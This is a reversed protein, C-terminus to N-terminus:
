RVTANKAQAVVLAASSELKLSHVPPHNFTDATRGCIEFDLDSDDQANVRTIKLGHRPPM